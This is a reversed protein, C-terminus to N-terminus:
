RDMLVRVIRPAAGAPASVETAQAIVRPDSTDGAQARWQLPLRVTVNEQAFTQPSLEIRHARNASRTAVAALAITIALICLMVIQMIRRRQPTYEGPKPM